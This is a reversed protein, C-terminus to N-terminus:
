LHLFVSKFFSYIKKTKLGTVIKLIPSNIKCRRECNKWVQIMLLPDNGYTPKTTSEEFSHHMQCSVKLLTGYLPSVAPFRQVDLVRFNRGQTISESVATLLKHRLSSHSKSYTLIFWGIHSPHWGAVATFNIQKRILQKRKMLLLRCSCLWRLTM